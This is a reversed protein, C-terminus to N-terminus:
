CLNTNWSDICVAVWIPNNFPVHIWTLMRDQVNPKVFRPPPLQLHTSDRNAASDDDQEDDANPQPNYSTPNSLLVPDLSMSDEENSEPIPVSSRRNHGDNVAFDVHATGGRPRATGIPATASNFTTAGYNHSSEPLVNAAQPQIQSEEVTSIVLNPVSGRRGGGIQSKITSTLSSRRSSSSRASFPGILQQQGEVTTKQFGLRRKQGKRAEPPPSFERKGAPQLSSGFPKKSSEGEKKLPPGLESPADSRNNNPAVPKSLFQSPAPPSDEKLRAELCRLPGLKLFEELNKRSSWLRIPPDAGETHPIGQYFGNIEVQVREPLKLDHHSIESLKKARVITANLQELYDDKTQTNEGSFSACGAHNAMMPFDVEHYLDLMASRISTVPASLPIKESTPTAPITLDTDETEYFTFVALDTALLKFRSAMSRLLEHNVQLQAQLSM